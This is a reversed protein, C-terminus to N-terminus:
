PLPLSAPNIETSRIQRLAEVTQDLAERRVYLDAVAVGTQHMQVSLRAGDGVLRGLAPALFGFVFAALEQWPDSWYDGYRFSVWAPEPATGQCSEM